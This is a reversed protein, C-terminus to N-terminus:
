VEFDIWSCYEFFMLLNIILSLYSHLDGDWRCHIIYTYTHIHVYGDLGYQADSIYIIFISNVRGYYM